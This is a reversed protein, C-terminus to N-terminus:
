DNRAEKKLRSIEDLNKSQAGIVDLWVDGVRDSLAKAGSVRLLTQVRDLM